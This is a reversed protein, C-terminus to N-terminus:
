VGGVGVMELKNEECYVEAAAACIGAILSTKDESIAVAYNPTGIKVTQPVMQQGTTECHHDALVKVLKNILQMSM